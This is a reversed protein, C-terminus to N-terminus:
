PDRSSFCNMCSKIWSLEIGKSTWLKLKGKHKFAKRFKNFVKTGFAEDINAWSRSRETIWLKLETLICWPQLWFMSVTRALMQFREHCSIIIIEQKTSMVHCTSWVHRAFFQKTKRLKKMAFKRESYFNSSINSKTRPFHRSTSTFIKAHIKALFNVCFNLSFEFM